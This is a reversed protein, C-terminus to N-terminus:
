PSKRSATFSRRACCRCALLCYTHCWWPPLRRAPPLSELKDDCPSLDISMTTSRPDLGDRRSNCYVVLWGVTTSAVWGVAITGEPDENRRSTMSHYAAATTRRADPPQFVYCGCSSQDGSRRHERHPSMWGTSNCRTLSRFFLLLLLFVLITYSHSLNTPSTTGPPPARRYYSRVQVVCPSHPLCSETEYVPQRGELSSFSDIVLFRM